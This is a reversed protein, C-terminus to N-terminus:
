ETSPDDDQDQFLAGTQQNLALFFKQLSQQFDQFQPRDAELDQIRADMTELQTLQDLIDQVVNQMERFYQRENELKEVKDVM